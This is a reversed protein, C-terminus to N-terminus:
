DEDPPIVKSIPKCYQWCVFTDARYFRSKAQRTSIGEATPRTVIFRYGIPSIEKGADSMGDFFGKLPESTFKGKM